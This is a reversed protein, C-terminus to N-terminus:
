AHGADKPQFSERLTFVEPGLKAKIFVGPHQEEVRFAGRVRLVPFLHHGGLGNVTRRWESMCCILSSEVTKQVCERRLFRGGKTVDPPEKRALERITSFGSTSATYPFERSLPIIIDGFGGCHDRIQMTTGTNGRMREPLPGIQAERAPIRLVVPPM